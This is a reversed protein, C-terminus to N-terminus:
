DCLLSPLFAHLLCALQTHTAACVSYSFLPSHAAAVGFLVCRLTALQTIMQFSSVPMETCLAAHLAHM